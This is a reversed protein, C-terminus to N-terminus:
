STSKSSRAAQRIAWSKDGREGAPSFGGSRAEVNQHAVLCGNNDRSGFLLDFQLAHRLFHGLDGRAELRQGLFQVHRDQRSDCSGGNLEFAAFLLARLERSKSSDPKSDLM